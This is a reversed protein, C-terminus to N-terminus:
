KMKEIAEYLRDIASYLRNEDQKSIEVEMSKNIAISQKWSEELMEASGKLEAILSARNYIPKNERLSKAPDKQHAEALVKKYATVATTEGTKIKEYLEPNERKVKLTRQVTSEGVGAKKALIETTRGEQTNVSTDNASDALVSPNEPVGTNKPRGPATNGHRVKRLRAQERVEAEHQEIALAAKQGPELNRRSKQNNYIWIKAADRSDFKRERTPCVLAHKQCIAYRNHGDVIVGNWVDIPTTVCGDELIRKELGAFEDESLPPLLNKFEEDIQLERSM